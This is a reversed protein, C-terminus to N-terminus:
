HAAPVSGADRRGVRWGYRVRGSAVGATREPAGLPLLVHQTTHDPADVVSAHQSTRQSTHEERATDHPAGVEQRGPGRLVAAEPHEQARGEVGHRM